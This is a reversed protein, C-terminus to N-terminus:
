QFHSSNQQDNQANQVETIAQKIAGVIAPYSNLLVLFEEQSYEVEFVVHDVGGQEGVRLDSVEFKVKM